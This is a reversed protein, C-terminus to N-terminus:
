WPVHCMFVRSRVPDNILRTAMSSPRARNTCQLKLQLHNLMLVIEHTISVSVVTDGHRLQGLQFGWGWSESCGWGWQRKTAPARAQARGGSIGIIIIIVGSGWALMWSFGASGRCFRQRGAVDCVFILLWGIGRRAVENLKNYSSQGCM